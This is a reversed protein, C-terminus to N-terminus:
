GEVYYGINWETKIIQPAAPDKEIKKRLYRIYLHLYDIQNVYEPGWVELILTRHPIVHGCNRVLYSLLRFETPSLSVPQNRVIVKHRAFDITLDGVIIVASKGLRSSMGRRLCTNIRAVLETIRFPKVMYDDAGATLGKVIDEETSRATLMIIPSETLERLRRCVELGDMQPLMLDLIIIEPRCDFAKKLGALGDKATVVEFGSQSLALGVSKLLTEDDDVILVKAM